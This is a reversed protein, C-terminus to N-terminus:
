QGAEIRTHSVSRKEMRVAGLQLLYDRGSYRLQVSRADIRLVQAGLISDGVGVLQDNIVAVRRAQGVLTSSLVWNPRKKKPTQAPQVRVEGPRPVPRMPDNTAALAAICWAGGLVAGILTAKRM